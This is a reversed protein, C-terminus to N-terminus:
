HSSGSTDTCIFSQCSRYLSQQHEVNAAHSDQALDGLAAREGGGRLRQGEGLRGDRLLDGRELALGARREDLAAHAADAEGVRTAREDAVRLRDEAPEGLGLRLELRDGPQAAAAQAHGGELRRARRQHRERDRGEALAVGRDLQRQRQGLRHVRQRLELATLELDREGEVGVVHGRRGPVRDLVDVQEVVREVEREGGVVREGVLAVQAQGVERAVGPDLAGGAAGARLHRPAGALPGAEHGPDRELGVVVRRDLAEHRGADADGQDGLEREGGHAVVDHDAREPALRRQAADVGGREGAAVARGAVM